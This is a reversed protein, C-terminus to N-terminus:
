HRQCRNGGPIEGGHSASVSPTSSRRADPHVPTQGHPRTNPWTARPAVICVPASWTNKPVWVADGARVPFGEDDGVTQVGEGEIVYLVEDAAEHVHTAHGQGPYLVVEGLSSTAGPVASPTVHWKITGWDFVYTPLFSPNRLAEDSM